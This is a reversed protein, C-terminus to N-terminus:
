ITIRINMHYKTAFQDVKLEPFKNKLIDVVQKQVRLANTGDCGVVVKFTHIDEDGADQIISFKNGIYEGRLVDGFGSADIGYPWDTQTLAARNSIIDYYHQVMVQFHEMAFHRAFLVENIDYFTFTAHLDRMYGEDSADYTIILGYNGGALPAIKKCFAVFRILQPYKSLDENSISGRSGSGSSGSNQEQIKKDIEALYQDIREMRDKESSKNNSRQAEEKKDSLWVAGLIVLIAICVLIFM